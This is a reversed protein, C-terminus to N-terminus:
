LWEDDEGSPQTEAQEPAEQSADDVSQVESDVNEEESEDLDNVDTEEISVDDELSPPAVPEAEKVPPTNVKAAAKKAPATGKAPATKKPAEKVPAEASAEKKAAAEQDAFMDASEKLPLEKEVMEKYATLQHSEAKRILERHVFNWKEPDNAYKAKANEVGKEIDKIATKQVPTYEIKKEATKAPATKAPATTTSSASATSTTKKAAEEASTEFEALNTLIGGVKEFAKTFEASGGEQLEEMTATMNFPKINLDKDGKSKPLISITVLDNKKSVSLVINSTELLHEIDALINWM